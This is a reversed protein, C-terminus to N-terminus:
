PERVWDDIRWSHDERVLLFVGLGAIRVRGREDKIQISRAADEVANPNAHPNGAFAARCAGSTASAIMEAQRKSLRSCAADGDGKAWAEYYQTATREARWRDLRQFPQFAFYAAVLLAGALARTLTVAGSIPVRAGVRSSRCSREVIPRTVAAARSPHCGAV